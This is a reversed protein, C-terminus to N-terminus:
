AVGDRRGSRATVAGDRGAGRGSLGCGDFWFFRKIGTILYSFGSPRRESNWTWYLKRNITSIQGFDCGRPL